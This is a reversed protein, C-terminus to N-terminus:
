EKEKEDNWIWQKNNDKDLYYHAAHHLVAQKQFQMKDVFACLIIVALVLAVLGLLTWDPAEM